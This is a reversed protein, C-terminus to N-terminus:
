FCCDGFVQRHLPSVIMCMGTGVLAYLPSHRPWYSSAWRLVRSMFNLYARKDRSPGKDQVNVSNFEENGSKWGSLMVCSLRHLLYRPLPSREMVIPPIVMSYYVIYQSTTSIQKPFLKRALVLIVPIGAATFM